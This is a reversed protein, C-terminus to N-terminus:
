FREAPRDPNPPWTPMSHPAHYQDTTESQSDHHCGPSNGLHDRRGKRQDAGASLTATLLAALHDALRARSWKREVVLRELLDLSMLAWVMDTASEITWDAALRNEDALWTVLRQSGLRWNRMTTQWLEAADPDTHRAHEIARLVGLIRPHSRAIHAAWEHLAAVSDPCDWVARLSTALEETSGLSRYLATLLEARNSYHLYVARRSIGAREAVTAMTLGDFGREEILDRAAALLASSTRRSRANQPEEIAKAM